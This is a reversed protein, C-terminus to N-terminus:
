CQARWCLQWQCASQEGVCNGSVSHEGVCNGSVSDGVCNSSVNNEGVFKGTCRKKVFYKRSNEIAGVGVTDTGVLVM